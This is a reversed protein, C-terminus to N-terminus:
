ESADEAGPIEQVMDLPMVRAPELNWTMNVVEWTNEKRYTDFRVYLPRVDYRFVAYVRKVSPGIPAVRVIDAGYFRGFSEDVAALSERLSGLAASDRVADWTTTWEALAAASGSASYAAIGRGILPPAEDTQAGLPGAAAALCVLGVAAVRLSGDLAM